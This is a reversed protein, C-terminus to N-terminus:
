LKNRPRAWKDRKNFTKNLTYKSSKNGDLWELDLVQVYRLTVMSLLIRIVYEDYVYIYIYITKFNSRIFLFIKSYDKLKEYPMEFLFSQSDVIHYNHTHLEIQM